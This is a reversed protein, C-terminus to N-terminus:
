ILTKFLEFPPILLFISLFFFDGRKRKLLQSRIMASSHLKRRHCSEGPREAKRAAELVEQQGVCEDPNSDEPFLDCELYEPLSLGFVDM